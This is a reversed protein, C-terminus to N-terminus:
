KLRDAGGFIKLAELPMLDNGFRRCSSMRFRDHGAEVPTHTHVRVPACAIADYPCNLRTARAAAAHSASSCSVDCFAAHGENLHYTGIEFSLAELVRTGGIGCCSQKLRYSKMVGYLHHEPQSRPPYNQGLDTDAAAGAGRLGTEVQARLARRVM